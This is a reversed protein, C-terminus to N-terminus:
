LLSVYLDRTEPSPEIGLRQRLTARCAHYQRLALPREGAQVYARMLARHWGEREPDTAVLRRYREIAAAPRGAAALAGALRELLALREAELEARAGEAWPEYPFDALFDGTWLREARLMRELAEEDGPRAPAGALELFEGADWSDKEGLVLRFIEGERALFSGGSRPSMAPELTRRLEHLTTDLARAGREPPLDHWLQDILRDRHVGRAGACVLAGLLARAKARGFASEPVRAGSRYLRLGGFTEIRIPPRARRQLLTRVRAAAAAVAPDPDAALARLTEPDIDTDEDAADALAARAAPAGALLLACGHLVERGCAAALRAAVPAEPLGVGLARALLAAARPRERATWLPLLDQEATLRLAEALRADGAGGPGHADAALLAARARHWDFGLAAALERAEEALDAALDPRGAARAALALECLVTPVEFSTGYERVERRATAVRALAAETEGRAAAARALAAGLRFALNTGTGLAIARLAEPELAAVGRWDELGCLATLRWWLSVPLPATRIGLRAGLDLVAESEALAARYRGLDNLMVARFGRGFAQLFSSELSELPALRALGDEVRRAAEAIRGRPFDVYFGRVVEAFPALLARELPGCAALAAAILRECGEADCASAHDVALMMQVPAAAPGAATLRPLHPEGAAIRELPAVGATLMAQLCRQLAAAAHAERGAAELGEVGELWARFGEEFDGELYRIFGHALLIRPRERWVEEPIRELWLALTAREPTPVMAEAVPELADAAAEGAGAELCHRVAEQHFGLDQWGGAARLHLACLGEHPRAALRRRLFAGFLHHFRFWDDGAPVVFMHAAVLADILERADARGSVVAALEPTFRELASLDVLFRQLDEPLERLVEEALYDFHPGAHAVRALAQPEGASRTALLLGAVWGETRQHLEGIAAEGLGEPGDGLLEAAEDFSFALADEGILTVGGAAVRSTPVGLEHRSTVTIHVNPPLDSVLLDLAAAAPAEELAHADDFALVFDDPVTAVLENALGAVQAEPPGALDLGAGVGPFAEALGAAVHAILMEPTRIRADCSLWVRPLPLSELAQVLLTTKGYGAGAVLAVLRGGIGRQVRGVLHPRLLCGPPLRPPVLRTRLVAGSANAAHTLGQATAM